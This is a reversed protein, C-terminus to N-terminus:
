LDAPDAECLEYANAYSKAIANWRRRYPDSMLYVAGDTGSDPSYGSYWNTIIVPKGSSAWFYEDDRGQEEAGTWYDRSSDGNENLFDQVLYMEEITELEVLKGNPALIRCYDQAADWHVASNGVYYCSDGVETFQEPCKARPTMECLVPLQTDRARDMWEFTFECSMMAGDGSSPSNPQGQVWNDVVVTSNDSSWIFQNTNGVEIAGIWPGG